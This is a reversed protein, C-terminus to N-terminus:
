VKQQLTDNIKIEEKEKDIGTEISLKGCGIQEDKKKGACRGCCSNNNKLSDTQEKQIVVVESTEM